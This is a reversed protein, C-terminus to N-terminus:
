IFTEDLPKLMMKVDGFCYETFIGFNSSKIMDNKMYSFSVEYKLILLLNKGKRRLTGKM